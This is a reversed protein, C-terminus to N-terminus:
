QATEVVPPSTQNGEIDRMVRLVQPFLEAIKKASMATIDAPGRVNAQVLRQITDFAALSGLEMAPTFGPQRRKDLADLERGADKIALDRFKELTSPDLFGKGVLDAAEQIKDRFRDIPEKIADKISEVASVQLNWVEREKSQVRDAMRKIHALRQESIKSRVEVEKEAESKDIAFQAKQKASIQFALRDKGFIDLGGLARDRARRRARQAGQIHEEASVGGALPPTGFFVEDRRARLEQTIAKNAALEREASAAAQAKIDRAKELGSLGVPSLGAFINGIFVDIKASLRTFEKTLRDFAQTVEETITKPFLFLGKGIGIVGALPTAITKGFGKWASDAGKVSEETDSVATALMALENLIPPMVESSIRQTTAGFKAMSKDLDTMNDAVKNMTGAAKQLEREYERIAESSGILSQTAQVTKNAIGLSMIGAKQGRDTLGGLANELDEVIDAMNRFAGSSDFVEINLARFAEANLIAKSTLDRLVIEFRTGANEAKVGQDAWVSLVALGEEIEIGLMRMAAGAKTTLSVSFQEVSANALTNAKVLNDMVRTLNRANTAADKSKLGLASLADTALDTARSLDFNGAQAFRGVGELAAISQAADLGASALFFYADAAERASFKTNRAVSLATREMDRRIEANVDSMIAVSRNMAGEFQNAAKGMARFGAIAAFGGLGIGFAGTLATGAKTVAGAFIGVDRGAKTLGARFAATNAIVNIALSGVFAM